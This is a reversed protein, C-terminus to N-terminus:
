RDKSTLASLGAFSLPIPGDPGARRSPSMPSM